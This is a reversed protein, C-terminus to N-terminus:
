RYEENHYEVAVVHTAPLDERVCDSVDFVWDTLVSRTAARDLLRHGSSRALETNTARGHEDVTVNIYVVGKQGRLQSRIPFKTPSQVVHPDCATDAPALAPLLLSVSATALIKLALSASM